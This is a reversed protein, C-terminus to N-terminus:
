NGTGRRIILEYSTVASAAFFGLGDPSGNKGKVNSPMNAPPGSFISGGSGTETLLAINYDYEDRVISLMDVVVPNNGPIIKEEDIYYIEAGPLYQGDFYEDTQFSTSRLSKNDLTDNIYINFMYINGKGEPERAWLKLIYYGRDIYPIYKYEYTISDISPVTDMTTTASYQENDATTVSLTYEKGVQGAFPYSSLYLGSLTDSEDLIIEKDGDFISVSAGSVRPTRENVFYSSSLSLSIEHFKRRNTVRGEVVLRQYQETNLELDIKEECGPFLFLITFLGTFAMLKNQIVVRKIFCNYRM